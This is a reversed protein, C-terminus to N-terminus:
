KNDEEINNGNNEQNRNELGGQLGILFAYGITQFKNVDKLAEIFDIPIPQKRSTYANLLTDMFRSENKVKLANQLRYAIGPIKNEDNRGYIQRLKIGYDRFKDIDKYWVKYKGEMLNNNLSILIYIIKSNKYEGSIRLRTLLAILDFLNKGNYIRLIVESYINIYYDKAIKVSKGILASLQKKNKSIIELKNKSLVNFTYPRSNNSKDFKVIQINEIESNVENVSKDEMSDIINFYSEQELEDIKKGSYLILNNASIIKSISKNNNIFLGKGNLVSFGAPICSYILNCIPCINSDSQFNWYHSSKRSGDVGMKTIWTIDYAFPKSLKQIKNDCTFCTYKAKELNSSEYNIVPNIFDNIYCEYMNKKNNNKNLFSVDSWFGQIVDYIVNKAAIIKRVNEENLYEIIEKLLNCQLKIDESVDSISQKKKIKIEKLQKEKELLNYSSDNIIEYASKYSASKLREKTYKIHSNLIALDKEDVEKSLLLNIYDYKSVIKEISIFEKYKYILYEFYVEEFNELIETDFEIYNSKLDIQSSGNLRHNIIKVFGVIGANKMWDSLEIRVKAM